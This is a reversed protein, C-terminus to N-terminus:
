GRRRGIPDTVFLVGGTGILLLGLIWWDTGDAPRPGPLDTDPLGSGTPSNGVWALVFGGTLDEDPICIFVGQSVVCNQQVNTPDYPVLLPQSLDFGAPASVEEVWYDGRAQPLFVAFGFETTVTDLL